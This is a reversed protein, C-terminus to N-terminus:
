FAGLGALVTPAGVGLIVHGCSCVSGTGVQGYIALPRGEVLITPIVNTAIMATACPPNFGPADPNTPNGHYTITDGLTAVPRGMALVTMTKSVVTGVPAVLTGTIGKIDTFCGSTAIPFTM